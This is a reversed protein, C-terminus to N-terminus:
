TAGLKTFNSDILAALEQHHLIIVDDPQSEVIEQLQPPPLLEGDYIFLSYNARGTLSLFRCFRNIAPTYIQDFLSCHSLVKTNIRMNLARSSEFMLLGKDLVTWAFGKSIFEKEVIFPVRCKRRFIECLYAEAEDIIRDLQDPTLIPTTGLAPLQISIWRQLALLSRFRPGQRPDAIDKLCVPLIPLLLSDATDVEHKIWPSDPAAPTDLLLVLNANALADDIQKQVASGPLIATEGDLEKAEDLFPRHGLTILHHYLQKAVTSGDSARYSIFIKSDRGQLRLGLMGGVRNVLREPRAADYPLAKIAAAAEPPKPSTTDVAVPLLLATGERSQLYQLIFTNGSLPFEKKNYLVILLDDWSVDSPWAAASDARICEVAVHDAFAGMLDKATKQTVDQCGDQYLIVVM